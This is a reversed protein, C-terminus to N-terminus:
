PAFLPPYAILIAILLGLVLAVVIIVGRLMAAGEFCAYRGGTWLMLLYATRAQISSEDVATAEM